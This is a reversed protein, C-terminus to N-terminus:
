QTANPADVDNDVATLTVTGISTTSGAAITLTKNESLTVPSNNPVSVEITVATDSKGSLTATVTSENKAGSEDITAPSLSLSVTPTTEDDTVTVAVSGISEEDYDNGTSTVTHRISTKRQDGANDLDDDVSTVTVTQADWDSPTFTLTMPGVTAVTADGSAVTITVTGTPKSALAVEYTTENETVDNTTLKDIEHVTLGGAPVAVENADVITVGRDDDDTITGTVKGGPVSSSLEGNEVTGITLVITEHAEDESDGTVKFTISVSTSGAPITVSTKEPATYDAGSTATGTVTYTVVVDRGSTSPISVEFTLDKTGQDGETVSVDTITVTPTADDDTIELEADSIVLGTATADVTFKEDDEDLDDNTPILTFTQSGSKQGATITIDFDNVGTYDTDSEAADDDKGVTVAVTTDTNFKTSGDLEATVTVTTAGAGEAVSSPSVSLTATTPAEDNDTITLTVDSPSAVGGGSAAGSVTVTANPADVDNDVATLTVTGTSSESGAAITLTKNESLTVPSQAPVSVEITVATASTGSLTATVTSVNDNGSEDITSPSLSLSVTPTGEDDTITLTADTPSAVGGGSATGSVTVTANPADVDNDVATLTVTGTSTESGAAITLTKNESLAVSSQAPVSVEITVAADSKGSLTATVTSVNDNGSEDITSPSLSLSVTPTGEDDTITLTADSPNAVGGGSAAGSVAVTANPADVDNDVATLTVTGTSSQSGAAITLTKNQSLTVPSNNPVSVEVTVDSDTKGSLTATVTSVNDDGSEDITPPTLTLSVTPTGEDDTITLTADTPNAVGGGSATGSVTVSVNLADVDNDVATLTVTGTSTESGAAITLTKNQSLTVPSGNPVSVEVTVATDSKVSLTATVTSVDDDGSEDITSPTLTLSVTPTGEDDTITLTADTPSAVGGGTATGSVAVTANPADVDNDVATLTVTGTSSQSGAAITLTTNASLTAPSGSLVSVEVTVDTDSKGSLTATVTSSNDNGSEDITSPTLTLTVTPTDEDDTITLTADSPSAVGGGSAAGSVTVTANPADVDNDVATLTVTGTSTQSGAAITLTKNQSLTVPSNDPVSVEITVATDSKGSLTATVTSENKAGSEDITSPSLSLSVTPTTEDDTVKVAVSGISEEDYDNGTSTVTHTISTKRQDGANDLDDDVATVTVTQANWDSPTFTLTKPSVTAVTADGSAVTITVTGTPKSALAVEYTTENETVDNTTANDIEHVTLGDAPVGLGATTSLTVGREDDDTITGTATKSTGLAANTSNSLTVTVTENSEDLVDGLIPIVISGTTAGAAIGVTKTEPDTYDEGATATGGLTYEVSVDHGSAASLTVIFTMNTATEPDNGEAVATPNAVTVTPTADDDTIKLKADSIVLGTATAHVTLKENAEDLDDNTPTLTFTKEGSLKGATITIDFENVGTYDTDSEAADGDKGVKVTVTTDTNFTTSGTLEATVTVTTAGAGEAVSSPSVSLTATTPAEDNDTITLTVDSPSAVGGGSAAGSVAVTANPADVDNDVSTLTVTGTSTNSGATITLTKNQSLTVPSNNPVSVHVTVDSDSKGTLTATVTSVNDDGSEGITSPTLILSVTPTGEDDTITLTADTPSAVGGGSAAGSVAVTANLADVDNDVATLTVTGTSSQSGAAITLTKNESLTVPSQAPVSVEITVATDSKGSLTATVTSAKDDGSEDITAPTLTLSVTPTGEDDTITLTTDTPSAVGGGSATGSVTVTANPADVDNDVATLTVSGTSSQSGAAITLTKNQSLTVPSQAPVSVEITVATDSKGSLMATVTSENKEGSEDITSPSLSLSVTPTTEDDTVTVAVSGISEGDYDNGSSTVTHTINTKRQDGANDLDDDVATVTVTKANWDSPTFTLAKPSVTAVTAHESAVTITVTGTPKSALSVEYTTENETVDETSPNDIEHITVGGDGITAGNGGVLIVGRDDDDTITGTPPKSDDDEPPLKGNTPTEPTVIITEDPEDVKDGTVVFTITVSTSGAPITVSPTEPPTYDVNVTATGTVTYPVVVDRESVSPISATFILNTTGSDGESVSTNTITVVPLEDDDVITGIMSGEVVLAEPSSIALAFTEEDPEDMADQATQVKLIIPNQETVLQSVQVTSNEVKTYDTGATAQTAGETSDDTTSWTLDFSHDKGLPQGGDTFYVEFQVEGGETAKTVKKVHMTVDDDELTVVVAADAVDKYDAGSSTHTVTVTRTNDSDDIDNDVGRVTVTQAKNWNSPTFTLTDDPLATFTGDVVKGIEIFEESKASTGTVTFSVTVDGTPESTLEVTYSGEGGAEAVSLNDTSLKVGREDNDTITGKASKADGLTAKTPASLTVVFTEEDEFVYDETTQVEITASTEGADITVTEPTTISTYDTDATAQKAGDSTDDGTTWEFTVDQGSVPDLTVTFTVAGGEAGEGQGITLVPLTDDNDTITGVVAADAVVLTSPASFSIVLTEDAENLDDDTTQVELVLPSDKTGEGQKVSVTQASVATYDDGSTAQEAGESADDATSWTLDIDAPAGGREGGDSFEFQFQLNEGEVASPSSLLHLTVDDDAIAVKVAGIQVDTYGAGSARHEIEIDRQNGPDDVNNDVARVRITQPQNWTAKTFTLTNSAIPTLTGGVDSGVVLHKPTASDSGTWVLKVTVNATPQSDLQVTYTTEGGAEELSLSPKSFTLGATEEDDITGIATDEGEETSVTVNTGGSLTLEVTEDGEAILDGVIPIVINLEAMGEAIDISLPSPEKYDQGATATGGLTYEVTIPKGSAVTLTVPFEMDTTGNPDDGELVTGADAVSVTPADDDDEVTVAVEYTDGDYFGGGSANVTIKGERKDEANDTPDDIVTVTVTQTQKNTKSWSEPTFTLQSPEVKYAPSESDFTFTVTVDEYIEHKDLSVEFTGSGDPESLTFATESVHLERPTYKITTTRRASNGDEDRVIITPTYSLGATESKPIAAHAQLFITGNDADIGMTDALAGEVSFTLQGQVRTQISNFFADRGAFTHPHGSPITIADFILPFGVEGYDDDRIILVHKHGTRTISYGDFEPLSAFGASSFGFPATDIGVIRDGHKEPISNPVTEFTFQGTAETPQHNGSSIEVDWGAGNPPEVYDSVPQARQSQRDFPTSDVKFFWGPQHSHDAPQIYYGLTKTEGEDVAADPLFLEPKDDDYDIRLVIVAEKPDISVEQSGTSLRVEFQERRESERDDIIPLVVSESTKGASITVSSDEPLFYDRGLTASGYYQDAKGDKFELNVVVDRSVKQTLTVTFEVTGSQESGSYSSSGRKLKPADDDIVTFGLVIGHRHEPPFHRGIEDNNPGPVRELFIFVKADGNATDDGIITLPLYAQYETSKMSIHFHGSASSDCRADTLSGIQVRTHVDDSSIYQRWNRGPYTAELLEASQRTIFCARMQMSTSELKDNGKTLATRKFYINFSGQDADTEKVLGHDATSKGIISRGITSLSDFWFTAVNIKPNDRIQGIATRREFQHQSDSSSLHVQFEETSEVFGDNKVSVTVTKSTEGPAFTVNRSNVAVYDKGAEATLHPPGDGDETSWQIRVPQTQAPTMTITFTADTPSYPPEGVSTDAIAFSVGDDNTITGTGYRTEPAGYRAGKVNAIQVKFTEDPEPQNDAESWVSVERSTWGPPIVYTKRRLVPGFDDDYAKATGDETMWDFTVRKDSKHSLTVEFKMRGGEAKTSDGIKITPQRDNDRIVGIAVDEDLVAGTPSSLVVRFQQRPEDITDELTTVRLKASTEGAPITVQPATQAEYDLGSKATHAEDTNKGGNKTDWTFTVDSAAPPDLTVVFDYSAGEALTGSVTEPASVSLAPGDIIYGTPPQVGETLVARGRWGFYELYKPDDEPVPNGGNSQALRVVLKDTGLTFNEKGEALGDVVTSIPNSIAETQGKAINLVIDHPKGPLNFDTGRLADGTSGELRIQIANGIPRSLRARLRMETGERVTDDVFGFEFEANNDDNLITGSVELLGGDCTNDAYLCSNIPNKFWIWVTEDPEEYHDGTITLEAFQEYEGPKFVIQTGSQLPFDKFNGKSDMEFGPATANDGPPLAIPRGGSYPRSTTWTVRVERESVIDLRVPFRLTSTQGADGELVSPHGFSLRPPEDNDEITIPVHASSPTVQLRDQGQGPLERFKVGWERSLDAKFCEPDEALEDDFTQIEFTATKGGVLDDKDLIYLSSRVLEYDQGARVFKSNTQLCSLTGRGDATLRIGVREGATLARDLTMTLEAIEGEDVSVKASTAGITATADTIVGTARLENAGGDFKLTGTPNTLVIQFTEPGEVLNDATLPIQIVYRQTYGTPPAVAALKATGSMTTYDSTTATGAVIKYDVTGAGGEYPNAAEIEVAMSGGESAQFLSRTFRVPSNRRNKITIPVIYPKQELDIWGLLLNDSGVRTGHQYKTRDPLHLNDTKTTGGSGYNVKEVAVQVNLREDGEGVDNDLKTEVTFSESSGQIAPEWTGNIEKKLDASGATDTVTRFRVRGHADNSKNHHSLAIQVSEGEWVEIRTKNPAFDPTPQVRIGNDCNNVRFGALAGEGSKVTNHPDAFRVNVKNNGEAWVAVVGTKWSDLEHRWTAFEIRRFQEGRDGLDFTLNGHTKQFDASQGNPGAKGRTPVEGESLGNRTEWRITVSGAGSQSSTASQLVVYLSMPMGECTQFKDHLPALAVLKVVRRKDATTEAGADGAFLVGLVALAILLLTAGAWIWGRAGSRVPCGFRRSSSTATVM